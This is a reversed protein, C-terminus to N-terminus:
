CYFCSFRLCLPYIGELREFTGFLVLASLHVLSFCFRLRLSHWPASTRLAKHCMGGFPTTRALMAEYKRIKYRVIQVGQNEQSEIRIM